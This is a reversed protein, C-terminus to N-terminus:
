DAAHAGDVLRLMQEHFSRHRELEDIVAQRAVLRHDLAEAAFHFGGALQFMWVDNQSVVRFLRAIRVEQDHLVDFAFAQRAANGSPVTMLLTIAWMSRVGLGSVSSRLSTGAASARTTSRM